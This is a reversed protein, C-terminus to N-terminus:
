LKAIHKDLEIHLAQGRLNKALIKGDPGVLFSAPISKVGYLAAAKSQWGGFDCVHYKWALRDQSIAKRWPEKVKDLSVSYVQFGKGNKFKAAKYKNYASVVNPNEKRCPGCWSAWFDVLVYNGRLSSLKLVKGEPSEFALEPAMDGIGTGADLKNKKKKKPWDVSTEASPAVSNYTFAFGVSGLALLLGFLKLRKM